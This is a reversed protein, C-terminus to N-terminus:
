LRDDAADHENDWLEALVPDSAATLAGTDVDAEAGDQDLRAKIADRVYRPVTFDHETAVTGLQRRVEPEIEISLWPRRAPRAVTRVMGGRWRPALTPM